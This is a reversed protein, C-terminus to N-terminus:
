SQRYYFRHYMSSSRRRSVDAISLVIVELRNYVVVAELVYMWLPLFFPRASVLIFLFYPVFKPTLITIMAELSLGLAAMGIYFFVFALM